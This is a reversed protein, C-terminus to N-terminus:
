LDEMSLIFRRAEIRLQLLNEKVFIIYIMIIGEWCNLITSIM